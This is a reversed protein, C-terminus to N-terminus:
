AVQEKKKKNRFKMFYNPDNDGNLWNLLVGYVDHYKRNFGALANIYLMKDLIKRPPFGESQLKIYEAYSLPKKNRMLNPVNDHCWKLFNAEKDDSFVFGEHANKEKVRSSTELTEKNNIDTNNINKTCQESEPQQMPENQAMANESKLDKKKEDDVGFGLVEVKYGAEKMMALGCDTFAYWLTRDMKDKNYNGTKIINAETLTNIVRKVKSYGMYPFLEAYAQKTNYTWYSGDFFMKNNAANKHIWYYLNNLFIAEEIGVKKAIDINFSHEM